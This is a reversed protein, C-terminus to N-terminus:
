GAADDEDEPKLGHEDEVIHLKKKRERYLRDTTDRVNEAVLPYARYLGIRKEVTLQRLWALAAEVDKNSKSSPRSYVGLVINCVRELGLLVDAPIVVYDFPKPASM